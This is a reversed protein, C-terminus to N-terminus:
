KPGTVTRKLCIESHKHIIINSRLICFPCSHLICFIVVLRWQQGDVYYLVIALYPYVRRIQDYLVQPCGPLLTSIHCYFPRQKQQVSIQFFFYECIIYRRVHKENYVLKHVVWRGFYSTHIGQVDSPANNKTRERANRGNTYLGRPRWRGVTRVVVSLLLTARTPVDLLRWM